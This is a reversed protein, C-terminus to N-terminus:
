TRHESPRTRAAEVPEIAFAPGAGLREAPTGYRLILDRVALARERGDLERAAGEVTEGALGVQCRPDSRLNLAWDADPAGAAVDIRGDEREVFGVAVTLPRGSTRGRTTLLIVKGWAALEDGVPDPM